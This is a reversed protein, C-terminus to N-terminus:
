GRGLLQDIFRSRRPAAPPPTRSTPPANSREAHGELLAREEPSFGDVCLWLLSQEASLGARLRGCVLESAASGDDEGIRVLLHAPGLETRVPLPDCVYQDQFERVSGSPARRDWEAPDARPVGRVVHPAAPPPGHDVVAIPGPLVLTVDVLEGTAADFGTQLMSRPADLMWWLTYGPRRPWEIILPIHEDVRIDGEREAGAAIIRLM